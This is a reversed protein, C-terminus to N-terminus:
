CIQKYRLRFNVRFCHYPEMDRFKLGQDRIPGPYERFVNEVGTEFGTFQFGYLKRNYLLNVVDIRVEEDARDTQNKLAKLNVFFHISCTTELDGGILNTAEGVSFFSLAKIKDDLYVEKYQKSGIYVEAVTGTSKENKYARAYSNYDLSSDANLGWTAVLRDYLWEQLNHIPIDVGEKETKTYKM